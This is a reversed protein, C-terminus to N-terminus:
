GEYAPMPWQKNMGELGIERLEDRTLGHEEALADKYIETLRDQEDMQRNAQEWFADQSYGPDSPLLDPYKAMSEKMARDEARVIDKFIEKRQSETLGFRAVPEPPNFYLELRAEDITISPGPDDFSKDLMAVWQYGSVAHEESTFLYIYANTVRDHYQFGTKEMARDYLKMLLARLEGEAAREKVVARIVVQAKIPSDHTEEDIIEFDPMDTSSAIGGPSVPPSTGVQEQDDGGATDTENSTCGPLVLCVVLVLGIGALLRIRVMKWERCIPVYISIKDLLQKSQRM